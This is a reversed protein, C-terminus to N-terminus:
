RRYNEVKRRENELVTIAVNLANEKWDFYNNKTVDQRENIYVRLFKCAKRAAGHYTSANPFKEKDVHQGKVTIYYRDKNLYTKLM